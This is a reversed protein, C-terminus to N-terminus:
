SDYEGIIASTGRGGRSPVKGTHHVIIVSIGLDVILQRIKAYVQGIGNASNEDADHFRLLPDFIVM